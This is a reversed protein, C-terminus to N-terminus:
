KEKDERLAVVRNFVPKESTSTDDVCFFGVRQFQFAPRNLGTDPAKAEAALCPEVLAHEVVLSDPNLLKLWPPLAVGGGEKVSSEPWAPAAHASSSYPSSSSLGVADQAAKGGRAGGLVPRLHEDLVGGRLEGHEVLAAALVLRRM